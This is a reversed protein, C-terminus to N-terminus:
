GLHRGVTARLGGGILAAADAAVILVNARPPVVLYKPRWEPDFKGKFQRLGEFNYFNRGHRYVLAGMRTTWRSGRRIELGALPAMGMSFREYGADRLHLILECFLFEMLGAPADSVHRMLDVTARKKADTVLLNAFAVTRDQYSITAIPFRRLYDPQFRGVSFQKEGQTKNQLWADSIARLEELRADDIPPAIM